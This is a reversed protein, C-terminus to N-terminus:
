IGGGGETEGGGQEEELATSAVMEKTVEVVIAEVRLYGYRYPSTSIAYLFKGIPFFEPTTSKTVGEFEQLTQDINLDTSASVNSGSVGVSTSVSAPGTIDSLSWEIEGHLTPPINLLFRNFRKSGSLSKSINNPLSAALRASKQESTTFIEVKEQRPRVVPWSLVGEEAEDPAAGGGSEGGGGETGVVTEGGSQNGQGSEFGNIKALIAEYSCSEVPDRPLFFIYRSAKAPGSYGNEIVADIYAVSNLEISASASSSNGIGQATDNGGAQDNVIKIKIGTLTDPLSINQIDGTRIYFNEFKELLPLKDFKTKVSHLSNRPEIEAAEWEDKEKVSNPNIGNNEIALAKAAEFSLSPDDKMEKEILDSLNITKGDADKGTIVTSTSGSEGSEIIERTFPIPVDLTDDYNQGSLTAFEDLKVERTLYKGDGLYEKEASITGFSPEIELETGFKEIINATGGNLDSVYVLQGEAEKTDANIIRKRKTVRKVFKNIQRETVSLDNEGLTLANEEPPPEAEGEQQQEGGGEETGGTDDSPLTGVEGESNFEEIEIPFESRFKQPTVDEKEFGILREGFVEPVVTKTILYKGGGLNESRYDTLADPKELNEETEIIQGDEAVDELQSDRLTETITAIQKEPTTIKSVLDIPDSEEDRSDPRDIEIKEISFGSGNGDYDVASITVEDFYGFGGNVIEANVIVGEVIIPKLLAGSGAGNKGSVILITQDSYDQGNDRIEFSIISGSYKGVLRGTSRKKNAAIQQEASEVLGMRANAVPKTIRGASECVVVLEGSERKFKAPINDPASATISPFGELNPVFSKNVFLEEMGVREVSAEVLLPNNADFHITTDDQPVLTLIRRAKQGQPTLFEEVIEASGAVAEAVAAEFEEEEGTPAGGSITVTAGKNYGSGGNTVVIEKVTGSNMVAVATAGSGKDVPVIGITPASTYGSGFSVLNISLIRFPNLKQVDVVRKVFKTVQQESKLISNGSLEPDEAQGEVVMEETKEPSFISFKSPILDEKRKQLRKAEFIQPVETTTVVYTGDGLSESEITKTATPEEETDGSQLTQTVTVTQGENNTARQTLTKPLDVISRFTSRIRKLFKTIQQESKSIDGSELQPEEAEGEVTEEETTAPAAVRFKAPAPDNAEKAFLKGTFVEPTDVLREVVTAADERSVEVTKIATPEPATYNEAAKRQTTITVLQGENNTANGVLQPGDVKYTQVIKVSLFDNYPEYSTQTIVGNLNELSGVEEGTPVFLQRREQIPGRSPDYFDRDRIPFLSNGDEDTDISWSEELETYVIASGERSDYTVQKDAERSAVQGENKVSRRRGQVPGLDDDYRTFPVYPSPLIEWVHRVREDGSIPQAGTFLHNPYRKDPCISLDEPVKYGAVRPDANLSVIPYDRDNASYGLVYIRNLPPNEVAM